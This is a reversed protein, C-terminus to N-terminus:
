NNISDIDPIDDELPKLKFFHITFTDAAMFGMEVDPDNKNLQFRGLQLRGFLNSVKM